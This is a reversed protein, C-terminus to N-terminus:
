LNLGTLSKEDGIVGKVFTNFSLSIRDKHGEVSPVEHALSSPFLLLNGPTNELWWSTSNFLNFKGEKVPINIQEYGGKQFYIKDSENSQIYFVGSLVSNPHRHRHHWQGKKSINIWSQSIYLDLSFYPCIINEKYANIEELFWSNLKELIKNNKLIYSNVSVKNGRNEKLKVQTLEKTELDSLKFPISSIQVPTPFLGIVNRDNTKM